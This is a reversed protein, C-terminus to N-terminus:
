RTKANDLKMMMDNMMIENDVLHIMTENQRKCLEQYSYIIYFEICIVIFFGLIVGQFWILRHRLERNRDMSRMNIKEANIDKIEM